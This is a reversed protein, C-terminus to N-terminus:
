YMTSDTKSVTTVANVSDSKTSDGKISGSDVSPPVVESVRQESWQTVEQAFSDGLEAVTVPEVGPEDDRGEVRALSAAAKGYTSDATLAARYAEAAAGYHGTRELAIGLNNEFVAVGDSLQTARALPRLAEDFRGQQILVLGMNNMSWTDEPDIALAIRYSELAAEANGLLAQTRGMVRYADSSAPDIDIAKALYEEAEAPKDSELLVRSVNVLSKVHRPDLEIADDFAAKARDLQGSRWSSMGLMYFGWPNKEHSKTYVDFMETAQQYDKTRFTSEADAYSVNAPIVSGSEPQVVETPTPEVVVPQQQPTDAVDSPKIGSDRCAAALVLLASATIAGGAIRAARTSRLTRSM